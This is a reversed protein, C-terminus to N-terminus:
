FNDCIILKSVAHTFILSVQHIDLCDVNLLVIIAELSNVKDEQDYLTVLQQAILPPLRPQLSGDLLPTELAHLYSAKLDESEFVIDWLKEFLLDLSELQICYNVCTLVMTDYDVNEDVPCQNLEDMYQILVDCVKDRAIQKRRQKSGRLGIVAKGKDQYFSLGL